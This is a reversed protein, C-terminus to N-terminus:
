SACPRTSWRRTEGELQSESWEDHTPPESRAFIRNVDADAKFVGAYWVSPDAPVDGAIYQVVLRPTRLLCTHHVADRFGCELAVGSPQPIAVFNRRLALIGARLGISRAEVMEAQDRTVEVRHLADVFSRLVEHDTPHSIPHSEGELSASFVMDARGDAGPLMKPWLHWLIVERMWDLAAEPSRDGLNPCALAITTGREDESFGPLGLQEAWADAEVNHLPEVGDDSARGWWHRGTYNVGDQTHSRGLAIGVLRSEDGGDAARCRTHAVVAGTRSAAFLSSKGFGYTGGGLGEGTDGSNLVFSTYNRPLDEREQDGRTPGALGVTGRDSIFLVWPDPESLAAAVRVGPMVASERLLERWIEGRRAGLRVLDISFRVPQVSAADRGDWSNQATERVLVTLRDLTPRGLQNRIGEAKTAGLAGVRQSVWSYDFKM